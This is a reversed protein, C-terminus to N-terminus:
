WRATWRRSSGCPRGPPSPPAPRPPGSTRPACPRSGCARATPPAPPLTRPCWPSCWRPAPPSGRGSSGTPATPPPSPAPSRPAARWGRRGPRTAGGTPPGSSWRRGPCRPCSNWGNGDLVRLGADGPRGRPRLQVPLTAPDLRFAHRGPRLNQFSLKGWADTTVVEGDETWIEVGGVGPEGATQVGDDDLDLFVKGLTTRTELARNRRVPVAVQVFASAVVRVSGALDRGSRRARAEAGIDLVPEEGSEVMLQFRFRYSDRPGLDGPIDVFLTDGAVRFSDVAMTSTVAAPAGASATAVPGSSAPSGAVGEGPLFVALVAQEPFLTTFPLLVETRTESLTTEGPNTVTVRIPLLEGVGVELLESEIAIDIEATDRPALDLGTSDAAVAGGGLIVAARNLLRVPEDVELTRALIRLTDARGAPLDPVSWRVVRGSEVEVGSAPLTSLLSLHDPLTDVLQLGRATGDPATNMVALTYAVTDGSVARGDGDVTKEFSISPVPDDGGAGGPLLTVPGSAATARETGDAELAARNTLTLTDGVADARASVRFRLTDGPALEAVTWTVVRGDVAAEPTTALPLLPAPLTDVVRLERLASATANVVEIEWEAAAGAAVTDAGLLTKRMEPAGARM